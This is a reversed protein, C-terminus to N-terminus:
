FIQKKQSRGICSGMKKSKSIIKFWEIMCIELDDCLEKSYNNGFFVSTDFSKCPSPPTIIYEQNKNHPKFALNNEMFNWLKDYWIWTSGHKTDLNIWNGM